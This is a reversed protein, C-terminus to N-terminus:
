VRLSFGFEIIHMFNRFFLTTFIQSFIRHQTKASTQLASALFAITSLETSPRRWKPIKDAVHIIILWRYARSLSGSPLFRFESRFLDTFALKEVLSIGTENMPSSDKHNSRRCLTYSVSAVACWHASAFAGSEAFSSGLLRSSQSSRSACEVVFRM